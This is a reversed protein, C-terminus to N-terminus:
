RSAAPAVAAAVVPASAPNAPPAVPIGGIVACAESVVSSTKGTVTVPAGAANALAVVLPGAPMLTACFLQGDAVIKTATSQQAATCGSLLLAAALIPRIM